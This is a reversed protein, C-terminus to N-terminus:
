GTADDVGEYSTPWGPFLLAVRALWQQVAAVGAPTASAVRTDEPDDLDYVLLGQEILSQIRDDLEELDCALTVDLSEVSVGLEDPQGDGAELAMYALMQMELERLGGTRSPHFALRSLAGAGLAALVIPRGRWGFDVPGEFAVEAIDPLRPEMSLDAEPRPSRPSQPLVGVATRIADATAELDILIRAGVSEPTEILGLLLHETGVESSGRTEAGARALELSRRTRPTFPIAETTVTDGTGVIRAVQHRVRRFSIGVSRLAREGMSDEVRLIGLLLHETGIHHHGFERAVEGLAAVAHRADYSFREFMGLRGARTIRWRHGVGM